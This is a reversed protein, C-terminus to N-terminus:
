EEVHEAAAYDQIVLHAKASELVELGGAPGRDGEGFELPEELHLTELFASWRRGFPSCNRSRSSELINNNPALLSLCHLAKKPNSRGDGGLPIDPKVTRIGAPRHLM